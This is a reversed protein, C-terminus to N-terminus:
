FPVEEPHADAPVADTVQDKRARNLKRISDAKVQWSRLSVTVTSKGKGFGQNYTSSVLTGEVYIHDGKRLKSAAYEGLGNWAVVRHWETKSHWEEDAGKWSRQTALSLVAYKHDATKVSKHEPNKGLYGILHVRNQYM